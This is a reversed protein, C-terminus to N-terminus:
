KENKIKNLIKTIRQLKDLLISETKGEGVEENMAIKVSINKQLKTYYDIKINKELQQIEVLIEDKSSPFDEIQFILNELISQIESDDQFKDYLEERSLADKNQLIINYLRKLKPNTFYKDSLFDKKININSLLILQLYKTQFDRKLFHGHFRNLPEYVTNERTKNKENKIDIKTIETYKRLYLLKTNENKVSNILPEIIKKIQNIDSLSNLDKGEIVRSLIFSFAESKHSILYEMKSPEKQMMEDIDKYPESSTAYPNMDLSSALKFSRILAEKGATDSDFFLLVNNTLSSLSELQETTLSTGLPAVINKFGYQHASIVDTSGECIIAMDLKRIEQKSEYQAFLNYKKHFIPTEPTNMYKPGWDNGPMIRATFGIVSGKKSRIPFMIRDYFKEKVVGEKETFLGSQLLEEKTYNKNLKLQRLLQPRRPAYGIGFNKISEKNLGRGLVYKLAHPNLSLQKYYYKTAIYNIDELTKYKSNVEFKKLEIGALKALKELTEPFDLNEINQVFNFIDGSANCGFCKYRQLDPSVIFSPTKEKHFPCLGSFNKGTQKLQVYKEVVQVIDLRDKIESIQNTYEM